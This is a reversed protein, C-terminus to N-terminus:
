CARPRNCIPPTISPSPIETATPPPPPPPPPPDTPEVTPTPPPTPPPDTPRPTATSRPNTPKPTETETPSVTALPVATPPVATPPEVPPAVPPVEPPSAPQPVPTAPVFATPKPAQPPAATPKPAQPSQAPPRVAPRTTPRPPVATPRPVRTRPPAPQVTPFITGQAAQVAQMTASAREVMSLTSTPEFNSATDLQIGNVSGPQQAPAPSLNSLGSLLLALIAIGAVLGGGIRLYLGTPPPPPGNRVMVATINDFGGRQNALKILRRVAVDASERCAVKGIERTAVLDYVGDSCLVLSDGAAWRVEALAVEPNPDGMAQSLQNGETVHDVSVQEISGNGHVLYARSDGINAVILRDPLVLAAVITAAMDNQRSLIQRRLARSADVIAQELRAAHPMSAPYGTGYYLQMIQQVSEQSAIDGDDNGGVGDSVLYLRGLRDLVMPELHDIADWRGWFDENRQRKRGTDSQGSVDLPLMVRPSVSAM